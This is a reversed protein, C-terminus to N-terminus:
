PRRRHILCLWFLYRRSALEWHGEQTGKAMNEQKKKPPHPETRSGWFRKWKKKSGAQIGPESGWGSLNSFSDQHFHTPFARSPHAQSSSCSATYGSSTHQHVIWSNNLWCFFFLYIFFGLIHQVSYPPAVRAIAKEKERRKSLICPHSLHQVKSKGTSTINPSRVRFSEEM